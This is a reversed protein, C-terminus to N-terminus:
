GAQQNDLSDLSLDVPPGSRLHCAVTRGPSPRVLPPREVRCVDMAYPCRPHFSCGAPPSIPNPMEGTAASGDAADKHLDPAAHLLAETYPHLPERFIEDAPAEEVIRGLYMVAVRDSLRRVVALDHTIFLYTLGLERGLAQFLNLVQAQVSVDLASVPEDAVILKPRVALARAVSVRQLGGGSLQSPKADVLDAPLGVLSLLRTAEERRESRPCLGYVALVEAISAGVTQYPNLTSYPDQLIIQLEQRLQRSRSRSAPVISEGEFEVNGRTPTEMRLILRGLTSKGSGTEGVVSLTEGRRVALSVDEVARLRAPEKGRVRASLAGEVVFHKTLGETRLLVPTVTTEDGVANAQSQPEVSAGEPTCRIDTRRVNFLFSVVKDVAHQRCSQWSKGGERVETVASSTEPSHLQPRPLANRKPQHCACRAAPRLTEPPTGGSPESAGPHRRRHLGGLVDRAPPLPDHLWTPGAWGCAPSLHQQLTGTGQQGAGAGFHERELDLFRRRHCRHGRRWRLRRHDSLGQSACGPRSPHEPGVRRSRTAVERRASAPSIVVEPEADEAVLYEAGVGTM